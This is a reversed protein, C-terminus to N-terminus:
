WRINMDFQNTLSPSNIITYVEGPVSAGPGTLTRCQTSPGNGCGWWNYSADVMFPPFSIPSTPQGGAYNIGVGHGIFDNFHATVSSGASATFAIAISQNRFENQEIMTGSVPQLSHISVGTSNAEAGVTGNDHIHNGIITNGDLAVGATHEDVSENSISVGPGGNDHLENYMVQNSVTVSGAEPALIGIGAGASVTGNHDVENRTVVNSSVGRNLVTIGSTPPLLHSALTIGSAYDNNRVLNGAIQNGTSAGTEDSILIGGANNEVLNRLVSSTSVAMLHIGEGCDVQEAPETMAPLGPCTGASPDLARDNGHVYNDLLTVNAANVVLIGEFEAGQVEFGAVVVNTLVSNPSAAGGRVVIGNPKGSANIVPKANPAATLTVSKNITVPAYTGQNVQIVDGTTASAILAAAITTYCGPKGQSDVCHTMANLNGATLLLFLAPLLCIALRSPIRHHPTMNRRQPQTMLWLTLSM